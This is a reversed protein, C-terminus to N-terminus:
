PRGESTSRSDGNAGVLEGPTGAGALRALEGLVLDAALPVAALAAESLELGVGIEGPQIGVVAISDEGLGLFRAAAFLDEIGSALAPCPAGPTGSLAACAILEVTGPAQGLEAADVIVVGHAGAIEPLLAVGLTGGDVLRTDGPLPLGDATRRRLEEVVAVGLGDDGFLVNGVGLVVLPANPGTM